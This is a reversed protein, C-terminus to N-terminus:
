LVTNGALFFSPILAKAQKGTESSDRCKTNETHPEDRNTVPPHRLSSSIYAQPVTPARPPAAEPNEPLTSRPERAM